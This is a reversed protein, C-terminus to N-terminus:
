QARYTATSPKTMAPPASPPIFVPVALGAGVQNSGSPRFFHVLMQPTVVVPASVGYAPDVLLGSGGPLPDTAVAPAAPVVVPVPPESPTAPSLDYGAPAVGEDVEATTLPDVDVLPAFAPRRGAEAVPLLRLPAPGVVPLYPRKGRGPVGAGVGTVVVGGAWAAVSALVAWRCVAPLRAIWGGVNPRMWRM